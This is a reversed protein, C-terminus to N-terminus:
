LFRIKSIRISHMIHKMYLKKCITLSFLCYVPTENFYLLCFKSNCLFNYEFVTINLHYIKFLYFKLFIHKNVNFDDRQCETYKQLVVYIKNQKIMGM